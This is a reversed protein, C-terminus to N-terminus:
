CTHGDSAAKCRRALLFSSSHAIRKFSDGLGVAELAPALQAPPAARPCRPEVQDDRPDVHQAPHRQPHDRYRDLGLADDGAVVDADIDGRDGVVLHDVRHLRHHRDLVDAVGDALDGLGRQPLDDALV